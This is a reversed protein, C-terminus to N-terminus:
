HPASILSDIIEAYTNSVHIWDHRDVVQRRAETGLKLRLEPDGLLKVIADALAAVEGAPVVLGT